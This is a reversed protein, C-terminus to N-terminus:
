RPANLEACIRCSFQLHVEDFPPTVRLPTTLAETPGKVTTVSRVTPLFYRHVVVAVLLYPVPLRDGGEFASTAYAGGVAFLILCEDHRQQGTPTPAPTPKPRGGFRM